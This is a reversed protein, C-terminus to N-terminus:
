SVNRHDDDADTNNDDFAQHIEWSEVDFSSIPFYIKNKNQKKKKQKKRKSEVFFFEFLRQNTIMIRIYIIGVVHTNSNSRIITPTAAHQSWEQDNWSLIPITRLFCAASKELFIRLTLMLCVFLGVFSPFYYFSLFLSFLWIRKQSWFYSSWYIIKVM